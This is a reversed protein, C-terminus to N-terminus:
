RMKCMKLHELVEVVYPDQNMRNARQAAKDILRVMMTLFKHCFRELYDVDESPDQQGPNQWDIELQCM